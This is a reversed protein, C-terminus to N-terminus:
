AGRASPPTGRAPAKAPEAPPEPDAPAPPAALKRVEAELDDLAKVALKEIKPAADHDARALEGRLDALPGARLVALAELVDDARQRINM